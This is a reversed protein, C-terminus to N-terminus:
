VIWTNRGFQFDRERLFATIDQQSDASEPWVALILKGGPDLALVDFVERSRRRLDYWKFEVGHSKLIQAVLKGKRGAGVLKLQDESHLQHTIFYRLKLLFFSEQDYIPSNRSTRETHDRWYHTVQSAARFTYGAVYWRMVLDYDEPYNLGAFPVDIFAQRLALWNPSAVVCERYMNALFGGHEGECMGNLWNEYRRYGSSIGTDSFYEVKGTAVVKGAGARLVQLLIDLKNISMIDDADMRHIYEGRSVAFAQSLADIIGSGVSSFVKVRRDRQRYASLLQLSDDSSGDDVAIVEYDVYTQALISQICEDLYPAANKVPMLISIM